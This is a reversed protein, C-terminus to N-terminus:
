YLMKEFHPTRWDPDVTYRFFGGHLHDHMGLAAMHDLTTILFTCVDEPADGQECGNLLADLVPVMPFKAQQGFGGSITDAYELATRFLAARASATDIPPVVNQKSATSEMERYADVALKRLGQPDSHWRAALRDLLAAFRAPPEYLAAVLPYGDPTLFVNLPWGARGVTREAFDILRADIGPHRERDVKIAVFDANLRAAIDANRYSERQMVHCWHCAFYGVSVLILRGDAQATDFAARGWDQWAVPDEGHLKLYPSSHDRLQNRLPEDAHAASLLCALVTALLRGFVSRLETGPNTRPM